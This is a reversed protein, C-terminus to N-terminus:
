TVSESIHLGSDARAAKGALTAEATGRVTPQQNILFINSHV